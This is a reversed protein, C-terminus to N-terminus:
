NQFIIHNKFKLIIVYSETETEEESSEDEDGTSEEESSSDEENDKEEKEIKKAKRQPKPTNFSSGQLSEDFITQDKLISKPKSEPLYQNPEKPENVM